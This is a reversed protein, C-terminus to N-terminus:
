SVWILLRQFRRCPCTDMLDLDGSGAVGALTSCPEDALWSLAHICDVSRDPM